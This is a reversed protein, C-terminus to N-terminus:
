AGGKKLRVKGIRGAGFDHMVKKTRNGFYDEDDYIKIPTSPGANAINVGDLVGDNFANIKKAGKSAGSRAM